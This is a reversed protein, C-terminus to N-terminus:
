DTIVIKKKLIRNEADAIVFYVGASLNNIELIKNANTKTKYVIQGLSNILTISANKNTSVSIYNGPNPFTNIVFNDLGNEAYGVDSCKGDGDKLQQIETLTLVRDWIGIEDLSGSFFHPIVYPIRGFNVPWNGSTNLFTNPFHSFTINTLLVADQYIQVQQINGGSYQYVYHHWNSDYVNAPSSYEVACDSGIICVGPSAVNFACEFRVGNNPMSQEDGWSVGCMTSTSNTSKAWFSVARPNSGLIGTMNTSIYDSSGNFSYAGAASNFRDTTLSAGSVTGHNGNGSADNANNCFPWFAKLGNTPVYSPIQSFVLLGKFVFLAILLISKM